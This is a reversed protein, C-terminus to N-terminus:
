DIICGVTFPKFTTQGIGAYAVVPSKLTITFVQDAFSREEGLYFLTIM